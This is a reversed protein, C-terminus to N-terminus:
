TSWIPGNGAENRLAILLELASSNLGEGDIGLLMVPTGIIRRGVLSHTHKHTHTLMHTQSPLFSNIVRCIQKKLIVFESRNFCLPTVVHCSFPPAM